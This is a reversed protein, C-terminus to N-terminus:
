FYVRWVGDCLVSHGQLTIRRDDSYCQYIPAVQHFINGSFIFMKGETYPVVDPEEVNRNKYFGKEEIDLEFQSDSKYKKLEGGTWLSLGAGGRPLKLSLTFSFNEDTNVDSYKNKLTDLHYNYIHDQHRKDIYDDPFDIIIKQPYPDEDGMIHFGPYALSDELESPGICKNLEYLIKEYLDSFNDLLIKNYYNKIKYYIKKNIRADAYSTAGMVYYPMNIDGDTWQRWENKLSILKSLYEETESESLLNIFVPDTM